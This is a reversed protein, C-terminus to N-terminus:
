ATYGTTTYGTSTYGTGGITGPTTFSQSTFSATAFSSLFPSSIASYASWYNSIMVQGFAINALTWKNTYHYGVETSSVVKERLVEFDYLDGYTYGATGSGPGRRFLNLSYDSVDTQYNPTDSSDSLTKDVNNVYVHIVNGSVAYTIWLEYVTNTAITSTATEKKYETGSDKIIVILKGDSQVKVIIADNILTDDIKELLTRAQGGQTSLSKIRFRIFYSIGTTLGAIQSDSSDPIKIYEANELDSTPRNLTLAISKTGGTHIGYDFPYGDILLPDGVLSAHNKFGSIDNLTNGLNDGRIWVRVKDLDPETPPYYPTSTFSKTSNLSHFKVVTDIDQGNSYVDEKNELKDTEQKNTFKALKKAIQNTFKTLPDNSIERINRISFQSM